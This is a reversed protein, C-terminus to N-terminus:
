LDRGKVLQAAFPCNASQIVITEKNDVNVTSKFELGLEQIKLKLKATDNIQRDITLNVNGAYWYQLAINNDRIKKKYQAFNNSKLKELEQNFEMRLDLINKGMVNGFSFNVISKVDLSNSLKIDKLIPVTASADVKIDSTMDISPLNGNVEPLDKLKQKFAANMFVDSVNENCFVLRQTLFGEWDWIDGISYNEMSSPLLDASYLREFEKRSVLM